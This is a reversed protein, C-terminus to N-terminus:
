KSMPSKVAIDRLYYVVDFIDDLSLTLLIYM